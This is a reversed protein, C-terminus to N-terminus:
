IIFSGLGSQHHISQERVYKRAIEEDLGVTRAFKGPSWLHGQFYMVKFDPLLKRLRYSSGGKLLQLAKSPGMSMPARVILHIHEPEVGMELIEMKHEEAISLLVAECLTKYKRSDIVGYRYKTCWELHYMLNSVSHSGSVLDDTKM